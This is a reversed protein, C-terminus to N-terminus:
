PRALFNVREGNEFATVFSDREYPGGGDLDFIRMGIQDCLLSFIQEPHTGYHDASGLGHEFALIPRHTTLTQLAGQLVQLEAGEVDLKVFHPVYDSAVVDDLRLVPVTIRELRERGPYPRQRFGSWGPRTLVHVFAEEGGHDSLAAQHVEAAPFRHALEAALHPLPEFALHRGRPALRIMQALFSGEHAGVDICNSDAALVAALIALLHEHDRRDRTVGSPEFARRIRRLRQGAGSRLAIQRLRRQARGAHGFEIM